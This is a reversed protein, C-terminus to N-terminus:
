FRKPEDGLQASKGTVPQAATDQIVRLEVAHARALSWGVWQAHDPTPSEAQLTKDGSWDETYVAKNEVIIRHIPTMAPMDSKGEINSRWDRDLFPNDDSTLVAAILSKGRGIEFGYARAQRDIDFIDEAPVMDKIVMVRQWKKTAIRRWADKIHEPMDKDLIVKAEDKGARGASTKRDQM